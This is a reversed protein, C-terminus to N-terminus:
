GLKNGSYQFISFTPVMIPPIETENFSCQQYSVNKHYCRGDKSRFESITMHGGFKKLLRIDPAGHDTLPKKFL